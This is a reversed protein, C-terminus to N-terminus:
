VFKRAVECTAFCVAFQKWHSFPEALMGVERLPLLASNVELAAIRSGNLVHSAALHEFGDAVSVTFLEDGNNVSCTCGLPPRASAACVWSQAKM